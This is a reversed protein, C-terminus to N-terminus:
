RLPLINFDLRPRNKARIIFIESRNLKKKLPSKPDKMDERWAQGNRNLWQPSTVAKGSHDCIQTRVEKYIYGGNKKPTRQMIIEYFGKNAIQLDWGDDQYELSLSAERCQVGNISTRPGISVSSVKLTEKPYTEGEIAVASANIGACYKLLWIPAGPGIYKTSKIVINTVETTLDEFLDGAYNLIPEGDSDVLCPVDRPSSDYTVVAARRLPNPDVLEDLNTSLTCAIIWRTPARPNIDAKVDTVFANNPYGYGTLTSYYKPCLRDTKIQTESLNREKTIARFTASFTDGSSTFQGSRGTQKIDLIGV